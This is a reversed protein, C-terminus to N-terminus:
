DSRRTLWAQVFLAPGLALIATLALDGAILWERPTSWGSPNPVMWGSMALAFAALLAIGWTTAAPGGTARWHMAGALPILLIILRYDYSLGLVFPGLLAGIGGVILNWSTGDLRPRNRLLVALWIATFLALVGLGALVLTTRSPLTSPDVETALPDAVLWTTPLAAAGFMTRSTAVIDSRSSERAITFADWSLALLALTALFGVIGIVKLRGRAFFPMFVGVAFYKAYAGWVLLVAGLVQAVRSNKALLLLGVLLALLIVIDLQGREIVLMAPPAVAAVTLLALMGVLEPTGRRWTRVALRAIVLVTFAYVGLLAFGLQPTQEVGIGLWALVRAPGEIYPQFPRGHPDCTTIDTGANICDAMSTFAILDGFSTRSSELLLPMPQVGFRTWEGTSILWSMVAVVIAPPTLSLVWGLAGTTKTANM